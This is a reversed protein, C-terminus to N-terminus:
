RAGTSYAERIAEDLARPVDEVLVHVRDRVVFEGGVVVHRVDGASAAFIVSEAATAPEFGALRPTDLAITTLDALAGTEIRGAEPWGLSAHGDATAARLLEAAGFHGRVQTRLREDLEVARAEAFLDIVAHSDSGLTLTSGADRLAAAPGIGDALDRETTPCFCAYARAAGILDVDGPTLHTAHVVSTRPGLAGAEALVQAPTCGYAALCAENEARQESLHAHLPVAREGAWAVVTAMQDRPVARVSHLAAGLRAGRTPLRGALEGARDAWREADGDGFRVQTGALPEGIGSGALEFDIGRWTCRRELVLLNGRDAYINMLDPYLACVRLSAGHQSRSEAHRGSPSEGASVAM